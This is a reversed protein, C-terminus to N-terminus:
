PASSLPRSGGSGPQRLEAALWDLGLLDNGLTVKADGGREAILGVPGVWGSDQITRMM